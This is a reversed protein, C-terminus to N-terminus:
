TTGDLFADLFTMDITQSMWREDRLDLLLPDALDVAGCTQSGWPEASVGVDLGKMEYAAESESLRVIRMAGFYPIFIHEHEEPTPSLTADVVSNAHHDNPEDQTSVYSRGELTSTNIKVQLDLLRHLVNASQACLTDGSSLSVNQMKELAKEMMGRDSPAQHSLLSDVQSSIADQNPAHGSRNGTGVHALVLAIAAMLGLFNAFRCSSAARNFDRLLVFRSLVERSSQACALRAMESRPTDVEEGALMYPVNLQIHLDHHLM